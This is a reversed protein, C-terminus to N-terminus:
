KKGKLWSFRRNEPMNNCHSPLASIGQEKTKKYIYVGKGHEEFHVPDWGESADERERREKRQKEEIKTKEANATDIDNRLISETVNAWLKRSENEGQEDIPAVVKPTVKETKSNFFDFSEGSEHDKLVLTENWKGSISYLTKGKANKVKGVVVNYDGTFYGKTKFEIETSIGSQECVISTKGGLEMLLAGFLIGRAYVNPWTVTYVENHNLLQMNLVGDAMSAASNGLFKSKPYYYGNGIIGKKKNELHFASIPPHHSVQEAFYTMTSGDELNYECQFIEGLVPNYPKKVGKPRIHWGSLYWKAVALMREVPDNFDNASCFLDPHSIFDTLRELLSRPELFTCPIVIRTLDMGITVQSILHSLLSKSSGELVEEAEELKMNGEGSNNEADSM